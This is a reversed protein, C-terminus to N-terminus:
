FSLVLRSGPERKRVRPSVGQKRDVENGPGGKNGKGSLPFPLFSIMPVRSPQLLMVCCGSNKFPRSLLAGAFSM